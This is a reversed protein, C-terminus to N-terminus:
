FPLLPQCTGEDDSATGGCSALALATIALCTPNRM